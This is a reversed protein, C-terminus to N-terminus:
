HVMIIAPYRQSLCAPPLVIKDIQCRKNQKGEDGDGDGDLSLCGISRAHQKSVDGVM